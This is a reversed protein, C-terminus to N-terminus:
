RRGTRGNLYKKMYWEHFQPNNNFIDVMEKAPVQDSRMCDAYEQFQDKNVKIHEISM